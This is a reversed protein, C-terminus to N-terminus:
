LGEIGTSHVLSGTKEDTSGAPLLGAAELAIRYLHTIEGALSRNQMNAYQKWLAHESDSLKFAVNKSM